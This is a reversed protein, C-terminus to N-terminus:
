KKGPKPEDGVGLFDKLGDVFSGRAPLDIGLVKDTVPKLLPNVRVDFVNCLYKMSGDDAIKVSKDILAEKSIYPLDKLETGRVFIDFMQRPLQVSINASPTTSRTVEVAGGGVKITFTGGNDGTLNLVLTRDEVTQLRDQKDKVYNTIERQVTNLLEDPGAKSPEAPKQQPGAPKEEPKQPAPGAPPKAPAVPTGPQRVQKGPEAPQETEEEGPQEQTQEAPEEVEQGLLDLAGQSPGQGPQQGGATQDTDSAAQKVGQASPPNPDDILISILGVSRNRRDIDISWDGGVAHLGFPENELETPSKDGWQNWFKDTLVGNQMLGRESLWDQAETGSLIYADGGWAVEQTRPEPGQPAAVAQAAATADISADLAAGTAGASQGMVPGVAMGLVPFLGLFWAWIFNTSSSNTVFDTRKKM